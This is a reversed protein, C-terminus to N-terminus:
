STRRQLQESNALTFCITLLVSAPHFFATSGVSALLLYIFFLLGIKDTVMNKKCFRTRGFILFAIAACFLVLGIWGFQGVVIPWFTDSLFSIDGPVLGHVMNLGYQYYLPSYYGPQATINSAYTAFGSGLPAFRNAIEVSVATLQARASGVTTFFYYQFQSWGLYVAALLMLSLQALHVRKSTGNMNLIIVCAAFAIATSRLSMCLLIWCVAIWFRNRRSDVLLVLIFGGLIEAFTAPHTFLFQFSFIGYREDFRMGLDIFQNLIAFPVMFAILCKIEGCFVMYLSHRDKMVVLGSFYVIVFKICAFMDICIAKADNQIQSEYNSLIGIFVLVAFCLMGCIEVNNFDAAHKEGRRVFGWLACVLIAVTAIEDFYTSLPLVDKLTSEFILLNICILWLFESITLNFFSNITHSKRAPSLM